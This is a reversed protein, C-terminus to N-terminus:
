EEYYVAGITVSGSTVLLDLDKGDGGNGQACDKAIEETIPLEWLGEHIEVGDAYTAGWWGNMVRLAAPIIVNQDGWIFPGDKTELIDFILTKFGWYVDDSLYPLGKGENDSFRGAAADGAALVLPEQGSDPGGYIWIRDLQNTVVDCKVTYEVTLETGDACLATLIVTHEGLKLKKWAYNGLLDKGDVTWKANVAASTTCTLVNGNQGSADKDLTVSSKSKLEEVSIHGDNSFDEEVPDCAAIACVAFLLMFIKKM